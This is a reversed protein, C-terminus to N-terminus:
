GIEIAEASVWDDDVFQQVPGAGADLRWMVTAVYDGSPITDVTRFGGVASRTLSTQFWQKALLYVAGDIDIGFAVRTTAASSFCSTLVSLRVPTWDWRKSFSFSSGSPLAAMTGSSTNGSGASENVSGYGLPRTAFCGTIVWDSGYRDLVVRDGVACHVDGLIKVPMAVSSGDMVVMARFADGQVSQVTGQDSTRPVARRVREDIAQILTDGFPNTM